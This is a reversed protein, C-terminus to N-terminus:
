SLAFRVIFNIGIILLLVLVARHFTRQNVRNYVLTGLLVGLPVAPFTILNFRLTEWTLMGTAAFGTLQVVGTVFLSVQLTSKTADKDWRKAATYVVVPPGGTNFAGGLIGAFFGAVYGWPDGIPPRDAAAKSLLAHLAFGTLFVGLMLKVIHEDVQKLFFIGLPVGLVVGIVIPKVRWWRFHRRLQINIIINTTMTFVAVFPIAFKVPVVFPLLAMAMLGFGFGITGQVFAGFLAIAGISLELM